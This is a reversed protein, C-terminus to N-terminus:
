QVVIRYSSTPVNRWKGRWYYHGCNPGHIHVVQQWWPGGQYPSLTATNQALAQLQNLSDRAALFDNTVHGDAHLYPFTDEVRYWAELVKYFSNRLQQNNGQWSEVQEHFARARDAFIHLKVLAAEELHTGHHARAEAWEHLHEAKEDLDHAARAIMEREEMQFAFAATNGFLLGMGIMGVTLITKM